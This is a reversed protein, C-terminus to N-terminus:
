FTKSQNMNKKTFDNKTESQSIKGQKNFNMNETNLFPNSSGKRIYHLKQDPLTLSSAKERVIGPNFSGSISVDSEDPTELAPVTTTTTTVPAAQCLHHHHHHVPLPPVVQFNGACGGGSGGSVVVGCGEIQHM